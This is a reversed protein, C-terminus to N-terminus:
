IKKLTKYATTEMNKNIYKGIIKRHKQWFKLNNLNIDFDGMIYDFKNKFEIEEFKLLKSAIGKKQYNPHICLTQGL